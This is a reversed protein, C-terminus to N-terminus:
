PGCRLNNPLNRPDVGILDEFKYFPEDGSKCKAAQWVANMVNCGSDAPTIIGNTEGLLGNSFNQSLYPAALEDVLLALAGDLSNTGLERSITVTKGLLNVPRNVWDTTGSFIPSMHSGTKQVDQDFCTYRIISDPKAILKQAMIMDRRSELVAQNVMATWTDAACGKVEIDSQSSPPTLDPNGGPVGSLPPGPRTPTQLIGGSYVNTEFDLEIEDLEFDTAPPAPPGVPSTSSGCDQPEDAPIHRGGPVQSPPVGPRLAMSTYGNPPSNCSGGTARASHNDSLQQLVTQNCMDAPGNGLLCTGSVGRCCTAADSDGWVCEPDVTRPNGTNDVVLVEYHIHPASEVAAGSYGNIAMQADADYGRLHTYRVEVKDNCRYRMYYGYGGVKFLPSDGNMVIYCGQQNQVPTCTDLMIDVGLHQRSSCGNKPPRPALWPLVVAGPAPNTITCSNQAMSSQAFFLSSFVVTVLFIGKLM